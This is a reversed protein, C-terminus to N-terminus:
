SGFEFSQVALDPNVFGRNYRPKECQVAFGFKIRPEANMGALEMKRVVSRWDAGAFDAWGLSHTMKVCWFRQKAVM